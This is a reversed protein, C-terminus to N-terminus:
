FQIEPRGEGAGSATRLDGEFKFFASALFSPALSSIGSHFLFILFDKLGFGEKEKPVIVADAAFPGFNQLRSIAPRKRM